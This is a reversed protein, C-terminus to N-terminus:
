GSALAIGDATVLFSRPTLPYAGTRHDAQLRREIRKKLGRRDSYLVLTGRDPIGARFPSGLPGSFLRHLDPHLLRSSALSDNTAVLIVRGADKARAGELRNPWPLKRLNEVALQHIVEVDSAWRDADWGTVFRHIDNSAIVYCIVLESLWESVLLHQTSGAPDIYDKPKLVPLLHARAEEWSEEGIAMEATQALSDVFHQIIEARRSPAARVERYLNSLYVVRNRGRIGKEDFEFDQDPHRLRLLELVENALKRGFLEEERTIELSAMVQEFVPNWVHREAAPVQSSAFLVVDGGAIIWYRGGEGEKLADATLAFHRLTSDRRLNGGEFPLAERALKPLDESLRDTDLSMPLISIWLGVDDREHPGFGCSRGEDHQLQDWHAPYDLRFVGAPHNFTTLPTPSMHM